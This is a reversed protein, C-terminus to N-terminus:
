CHASTSFTSHSVSCSFYTPLDSRHLTTAGAIRIDVKHKHTKHKRDLRSSHALRGRLSNTGFVSASRFMSSCPEVSAPMFPARKM